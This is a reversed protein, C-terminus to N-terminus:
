NCTRSVCSRSLLAPYVALCVSLCVELPLFLRNEEALTFLTEIPASIKVFVTKMDLGLEHEVNLRRTNITYEAKANRTAADTSPDKGSQWNRLAAILRSQSLESEFYMRRRAKRTDGTISNPDKHLADSQLLRAATDSPPSPLQALAM